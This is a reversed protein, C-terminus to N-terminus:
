LKGETLRWAGETKGERRAGVKGKQGRQRERENRGVRYNVLLGRHRVLHGGLLLLSLALLVGLAHSEVGDELETESQNDVCFRVRHDWLVFRGWQVVGKYMFERRKSRKKLIGRDWREKFGNRKSRARGLRTGWSLCVLIENTNQTESLKNCPHFSPNAHIDFRCGKKNALLKM